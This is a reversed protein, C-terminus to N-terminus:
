MVSRDVKVPFINLRANLATRPLRADKPDLKLFLDMGSIVTSEVAVIAIDLDDRASLVAIAADDSAAFVFEHGGGANDGSDISGGSNISGGAFMAEVTPEDDVVLVNVM